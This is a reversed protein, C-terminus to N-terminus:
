RGFLTQQFYKPLTYDVTFERLREQSLYLIDRVRPYYPCVLIQPPQKPNNKYGIQLPFM